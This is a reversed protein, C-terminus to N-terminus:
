QHNYIYMVKCPNCAPICESDLDSHYESLCNQSDRLSATHSKLLKGLAGPWKFGPGLGCIGVCHPPLSKLAFREFAGALIWVWVNVCKVSFPKICLCKKGKGQRVPLGPNSKAPKTLNPSVLCISIPHSVWHECSVRTPMPTFLLTCCSFVSFFCDATIM